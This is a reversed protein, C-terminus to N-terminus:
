NIYFDTSHQFYEPLVHDLIDDSMGVLMILLVDAMM